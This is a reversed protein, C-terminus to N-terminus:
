RESQNIAPQRPAARNVAHLDPQAQEVMLRCFFVVVGSTGLIHLLKSKSRERRSAAPAASGGAGSWPGFINVDSWFHLLTVRSHTTREPRYPVPM